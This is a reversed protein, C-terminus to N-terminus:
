ELRPGEPETNRFAIAQPLTEYLLTAPYLACKRDNFEILVGDGVREASIIHPPCDKEM